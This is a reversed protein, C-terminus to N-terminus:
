VFRQGNMAIFVMLSQAIHGETRGIALGTVIRTRGGVILRNRHDMKIIAEEAMCCGRGQLWPHWAAAAIAGGTM